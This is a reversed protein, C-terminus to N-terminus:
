PSTTPRWASVPSRKRASRCRASRGPARAAASRAASSSTSSRAPARCVSAGRFSLGAPRGTPAASRATAARRASAGSSSSTPTACSSTAASRFSCFLNFRTLNVQRDDVETASFDTNVTALANMQPTLKYAVDLSPELELSESGPSFSRLQSWAASPVVDLGLGQEINEFGVARGATSPDWRRDRSVWAIDENKRQVTRSFNLGWTDSGPDFSLTRYPIRYEATWGEDFRGAEAEFIGDWDSYYESVNRYLGDFRVGHPNVGFFYGSRQTNYPDLTVFLTDDGTINGGQRLVNATIREPDTDYLRAGVYLNEDDYLLLIETREFPEAYEVPNVQHLDDVVAAENWVADDLRGDIEPPAAARVLEVRKAGPDGSAGGDQALCPAAAAAALAGTLRRRTSM